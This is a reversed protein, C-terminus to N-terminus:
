VLREPKFILTIAYRVRQWLPLKAPNPRPTGNTPLPCWAVFSENLEGFWNGVVAVGGITRLLVKSGRYPCVEYRWYLQEPPAAVHTLKM